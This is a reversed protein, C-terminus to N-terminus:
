RQSSAGSPRERVHWGGHQARLSNYLWLFENKGSYRTGPVATPMVGLASSGFLTRYMSHSEYVSPLRALPVGNVLLEFTLLNFHVSLPNGSGDLGPATKSVLWYEANRGYAQWGHGSQYASWSKKIANDLSAAKNHLLEKALVLYCRYATGKWRHYLISILTHTAKSTSLDGEQIVISCEIFVSAAEPDILTDELYKDEINFSDVCILALEVAKTGLDERQSDNTAQQAKERLLNVWHLSVHRVDALYALSRDRIHESSTLSLLRSALSIFISLANSSEWNEKTRSLAEYLAALLAHAFSEDNLIEHGIKLVNGDKPPGTQYISQLVVLGTEDTKFDVTPVFLQLLINQWQLRLQPITSLAKFEDFSM